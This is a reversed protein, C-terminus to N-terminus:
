STRIKRSTREASLEKTVSLMFGLPVTSMLTERPPSPAMVATESMSLASASARSASMFSGSSPQSLGTVVADGAPAVAPPPATM